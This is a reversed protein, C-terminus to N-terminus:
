LGLGGGALGMIMGGFAIMSLIFTAIFVIALIGSVVFYTKLEKLAAELEQNDEKMISSASLTSFRMLKVMLFIFVATFALMLLGIFMFIGGGLLGLGGMGPISSAVASGGFLVGLSALVLIAGFIFGVISFAKTYTSTKELHFRTETPVVILERDDVMNNFDM